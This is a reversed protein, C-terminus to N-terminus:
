ILSLIFAVLVRALMIILLGAGAFILTKRSRAFKESDGSSTIMQLGGVMVMVVAIVGAVITLINVVKDILSDTGSIPDNIIKRCASSEYGPSDISCLSNNPDDQTGNYPDIAHAKIPVALFLILLFLTFVRKM